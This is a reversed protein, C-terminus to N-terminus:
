KSGGAILRKPPKHTSPIYPLDTRGAPKDFLSRVEERDDRGRADVDETVTM